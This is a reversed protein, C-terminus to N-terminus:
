SVYRIVSKRRFSCFLFNQITDFPTRHKVNICKIKRFFEKLRDSLTIESYQKIKLGSCKEPGSESFTGLILFGEPKVFNKITNVYKKIEREETLFHFTARDHWLDFKVDPKFNLVDSNVWTVFKAKRGLREKVRDLASKSIDLITIDTYGLEILNDAFFSDGGGADIIKASKPLNFKKLFNLSTTPKPQYWSYQNNGKYVEEWHERRESQKM